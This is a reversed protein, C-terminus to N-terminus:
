NGMLFQVYAKAPPLAEIAGKPDKTACYRKFGTLAPEALAELQFADEKGDLRLVGPLILSPKPGLTDKQWLSNCIARLLLDGFNLNKTGYQFSAVREGLIDEWFVARYEGRVRGSQQIQFTALRRGAGDLTASHMVGCLKKTFGCRKDVKQVPPAIDSQYLVRTLARAVLDWLSGSWRPYATVMAPTLEGVGELQMAVHYDALADRKRYAVDLVGVRSEPKLEALLGAHLSVKLM